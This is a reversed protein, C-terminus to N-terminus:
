SEQNFIRDLFEFFDEGVAVSLIVYFPFVVVGMAMCLARTM